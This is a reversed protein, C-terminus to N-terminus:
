QPGGPSDAAVEFTAVPVDSQCRDEPLEQHFRTGLIYPTEVEATSYTSAADPYDGGLYITDAFYVGPALDTDDLPLRVIEAGNTEATLVIIPDLGTGVDEARRIKVKVLRTYENVPVAIAIPDRPAIQSATFSPTGTLGTPVQYRSSVDSCSPLDDGRCGTVAGAGLALLALVLWCVDIKVKRVGKASLPVV